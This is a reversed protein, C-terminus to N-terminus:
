MVLPTLDKKQKKIQKIHTLYRYAAEKFEPYKDGLGVRKGCYIQENDLKEETLKFEDIKNTKFFESFETCNFNRLLENVTICPGTYFDNTDLDKISRILIGFYTKTKKDGYVIDMCKYTGCKYTGSKFRHPYFTNNELQNPNCHTYQDNHKDDCYYMEIECIRYRKQKVTFVSGNLIKEAYKKFLAETM